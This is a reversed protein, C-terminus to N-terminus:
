KIPYFHFNLFGLLKSEREMEEHLKQIKLRQDTIAKKIDVEILSCHRLEEQDTEKRVILMANQYDSANIFKLIINEGTIPDPKVLKYVRKIFENSFGVAKQKWNELNTSNEFTYDYVYKKVNKDSNNNLRLENNGEILVTIVEVTSETFDYHNVIRRIEDIERIMVFFIQYDNEVIFNTIYNFPHDFYDTTLEKLKSLFEREHDSKLDTYGILKSAEKIKDVSSFKVAKVNQKTLHEICFDAFSDKGSRPFGNLIVLTKKM